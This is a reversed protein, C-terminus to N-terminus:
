TVRVRLVSRETRGARDVELVLRYRGPRVKAKSHLHLSSDVGRGSAVVRRGKMLRATVAGRKGAALTVKCTVKVKGKKKTKRPKCSVRADRGPRGPQGDSGAPGSLGVPGPPGAVGAPGSPGGEGPAGPPGETGLLGAPGEDGIPGAPGTPGEPGAPGTPGTAPVTRAAGLGILGVDLDGMPANSSIRLVAGRTGEDTPAFRMKIVCTADPALTAGACDDAAVLYDEPHDGTVRIRGIVLAADGASTLTLTRAPGIARVEESDFDLSSPSPVVGAEPPPPGAVVTWTRQEPTADANGVADRAWVRFTHQGLTLGTLTSPSACSTNVAQDDLQCSFAAGAESSFSFTATTDTTNGSPGSAALVTQPAVTDVTWTRSAPSPDLNGAVDRARVAFTHQGQGLASYFKPSSCLSTIGDLTCVFTGPENSGFDFQASTSAVTGSPGGPQLTTEPLVKDVTWQWTSEPSRNGSWDLARVQFTYSGTPPDEQQGSACAQWDHVGGVRCEFLRFTADSAASFTFSAPGNVSQVPGTLSAMEPSTDDVFRARTQLNQFTAFQCATGSHNPSGNSGDCLVPGPTSRGDSQWGAFRYGAAPEAVYRVVWGGQYDGGADGARCTAGVVGTPTTGPSAFGEIADPCHEDLENADTTEYVRGAGTISIDVYWAHATPAALLITAAAFCVALFSKPHTLVVGRDNPQASPRWERARTGGSAGLITHTRAAALCPGYIYM